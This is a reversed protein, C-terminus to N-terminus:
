SALSVEFFDQGLQAFPQLEDIFRSKNVAVKFKLVNHDVDMLIGWSDFDNVESGGEVEM